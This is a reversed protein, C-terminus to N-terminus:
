LTAFRDRGHGGVFRSVDESEAALAAEDVPEFLETAV